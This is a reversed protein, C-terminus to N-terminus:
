MLTSSSVWCVPSCWQIRIWSPPITCTQDSLQIQSPAYWDSSFPLLEPTEGVEWCRSEINSVSCLQVVVLRMVWECLAVRCQILGLHARSTFLMRYTQVPRTSLLHAAASLWVCLGCNCSWRCKTPRGKLWRQNTLQRQATVIHHITVRSPVSKDIFADNHSSWMCEAILPIRPQTDYM